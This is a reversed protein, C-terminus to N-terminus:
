IEGKKWMRTYKRSPFITKLFLEGEAEVYPVVWIYAGYEFLLLKQNPRQPHQLATILRARIIEEFSVGRESKLKESKELDWRVHKM